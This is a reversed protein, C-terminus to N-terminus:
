PGTEGPPKAARELPESRAVHLEALDDRATLPQEGLLQDALELQQTVVDRGLRECRDPGDDLAVEASGDLPQEGLQRLLRQRRRRDRLHM